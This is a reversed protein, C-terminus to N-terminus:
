AAKSAQDATLIAFLANPDDTSRLKSCIGPDRLTRSVRALAKLHDAGAGSPALLVFVLDVPQHDVSEYEIPKELRIFIGKVSDLGPFRAHPIAVGNGMGTPGLLEREQVANIVERCDMGFASSAVQGIEQMLRKKSTAKLQSVVAEAPLIQSLEM